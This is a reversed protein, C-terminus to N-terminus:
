RSYIIEIQQDTNLTFRFELIPNDLNYSAVPQPSVRVVQADAPLTVQVGIPDAITGLQKQVNLQYRSYAGVTEILPPTAYSFQLRETSDYAITNNSVFITHQDTNATQPEFTLNTGTLESGLPVFVQLLNNYDLPGHHEPDV